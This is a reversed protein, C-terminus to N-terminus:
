ALRVRPYDLEFRGVQLKIAVRCNVEWHSFLLDLAFDRRDGELPFESGVFCFDPGLEILFDKLRRLLGRHLDAEAHGQPLDLFEGRFSDKLVSVITGGSLRM